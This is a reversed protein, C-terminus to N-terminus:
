FLVSQTLSVPSAKYEMMVKANWVCREVGSAEMREFDFGNTSLTDLVEKKSLSDLNHIHNDWDKQSGSENSISLVKFSNDKRLWFIGGMAAIMVWTASDVSFWDVSNMMVAGTTALGHAKFDSNFIETVWKVRQKEAVDNRPSVCIHKTLKLMENLYNDPEGQHYVPLVRGPFRKNLIHFNAMSQEMADEVEQLTPDVGKSGPIVDLNILTATALYRNSLIEKEFFISLKNIDVDEGKTWATFAGSDLLFDSPAQMFNVLKSYDSAVKAYAFSVLRCGKQEIIYTNVPEWVGTAAGGSLYMKM